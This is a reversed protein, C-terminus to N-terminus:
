RVMRCMIGPPSITMYFVFFSQNILSAAIIKSLRFFIHKRSIQAALLEILVFSFISSV